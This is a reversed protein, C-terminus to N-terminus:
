RAPITLVAGVPLKTPPYSPNAEHIERWRRGTGLYQRALSYYTDGRQVTHTRTAAAPPIAAMGPDQEPMIVVDAEIDEEPAVLATVDPGTGRPREDYIVNPDSDVVALPRLEDYGDNGPAGSRAMGNGEGADIQMNRQNDKQCAALGVLLVPLLLYFTTRM